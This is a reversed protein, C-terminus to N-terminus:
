SRDQMFKKLTCSVEADGGSKQCLRLLTRVRVMRASACIPRLCDFLVLLVKLQLLSPPRVVSDGGTARKKCLFSFCLLCACCLRCLRKWVGRCPCEGGYDGESTRLYLLGLPGTQQPALPPLLSCRSKAPLMRRSHSGFTSPASKIPGTKKAQGM